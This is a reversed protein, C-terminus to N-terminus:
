TMVGSSVFPSLSRNMWSAEAITEFLMYISSRSFPQEANFQAAKKKPHAPNSVPGKENDHSAQAHQDPRDRAKVQSPM